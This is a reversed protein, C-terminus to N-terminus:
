SCQYVVSSELTLQPTHYLVITDLFTQTHIALKPFVLLMCVCMNISMFTYSLQCQSSYYRYTDCLHGESPVKVQLFVRFNQM